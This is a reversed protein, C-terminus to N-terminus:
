LPQVQSGARVVYLAPFWRAQCSSVKWYMKCLLSIEMQPYERSWILWSHALQSYKVDSKSLFSYTLNIFSAGCLNLMHMLCTVFTCQYWLKMQM